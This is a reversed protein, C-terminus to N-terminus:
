EFGMNQERDQEQMRFKLIDHEIRAKSERVLSMLSAPIYSEINDLLRVKNEIIAAFSGSYIGVEQFRDIFKLLVIRPDPANKLLEKAKESWTATRKSDAYTIFSAAHLYNRNKDQECWAILTECSIVDTPNGLLKNSRDITDIGAQQEDNTGEFLADLVINPQLILLEKILKNCNFPNIEFNQVSQRIRSVFMSVLPIASSDALCWKLVQAVKYEFNDSNIRFNFRELLARGVKILEQSNKQERQYYSINQRLVDIAIEFGNEHDAFLNLLDKLLSISLHDVGQQYAINSFKFVPVGANLADKLREIGREDLPVASYLSPLVETLKPNKQAKDLLQQTLENDQNWLNALFGRLVHINSQECAFKEYADLLSEWTLTKNKSGSVLGSGFDYVFNNGRFLDPLLQDFLNDDIAVEVGHKEAVEKLHNLDKIRSNEVGDHELLDLKVLSNGLLLARIEDALNSPKLKQVLDSIQLLEDQSFIKKDLSLILRCAEDGEQWFEDANFKLALKVLLDRISTIEWLGRFHNAVLTRIKLKVVDDQAFNQLVELVSQYWSHVETNLSPKYGYDRSRAGFEYRYGSIFDKTQLAKNLAKLGLDKSRKNPSSLLRKFVDIRQELSAHTGSLYITFLSLFVDSARNAEVINNNETVSRILIETSREFLDADYALSRLLPFIWMTLDSNNFSLNARELAALAAEPLVPAVNQFMVQQNEDLKAVDGLKGNPSLWNRVIDTAVPNKHLFSLRKSFSRALRERGVEFFQQEIIKSPTEQLARSALWNAIAHPLVARWVGRSQVLGREQLQSIYRYTTHSNKNALIALSEIESNEGLVSEAQFSYVLSCAQAVQLLDDTQVNRQWFLRQFLQDNSLGTISGTKEVADALAIAIRANGGAAEAITHRDVQSLTQFRIKILSEILETSSPNLNVVETGEPQDERVDYEITLVSILSRQQCCLETLTRHLEPSCNDIILVANKNNAILNSAMTLPQPNPNYSLDTYVALSPNLPNVGIKKDFLTQALRTKGVGSLGVLRVSKRPERLMDRLKDIAEETAMPNTELRGSFHLCLQKDILYEKNVNNTRDCWTFYSSWGDLSRGLREKVLSILGPYDRVWTAIRSRDYFDTFLEEANPLTDLADRMAMKRDQLPRDATNSGSSIIIYAGNKDALESIVQRISGKPKMEGTIISATMNPKKVQFGTTNRPIFGDQKLTNGVPLEIRVDLGGDTATQNGGWTVAVPSLAQSSLEAECLCGVLERLDVDNLQSIEDSTVDFM